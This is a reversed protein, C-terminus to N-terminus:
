LLCGIRHRSETNTRTRIIKKKIKNADTAIFRLCARLVIYVFNMGVSVCPMARVFFFCNKKNTQKTEDLFTRTTALSPSFLLLFFLSTLVFLFAIFNSLECNFLPVFPCYRIPVHFLHLYALPFQLSQIHYLLLLM